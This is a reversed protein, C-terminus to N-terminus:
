GAERARRLAADFTHASAEVRDASAGPKYLASGLGFGSAGAAVFPALSEPTIGGVPLFLTESPFVSRLARLVSPGLLEAPFAPCACYPAPIWGETSGVMGAAIAPLDRRRERWQAVMDHYARPFGGVTSLVGWPRDKRELV